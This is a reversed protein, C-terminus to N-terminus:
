RRRRARGRPAPSAGRRAARGASRGASGCARARGARAHAPAGAARAADVDRDEHEVEVAELHDVVREAVGGAVLHQERQRGPQGGRHARGVRDRAQAAVLEDDDAGVDVAARPAVSTASRSAAATLRGSTRSLPSCKKVTLMPMVSAASAAPCARLRQEAVGVRRHVAGLLAAAAAVLQEVLRHAGAHHGAHAGLGLQAAREVAALELDVVLRHDVEGGAPRHGGLREHAPLVGLAAQDGGSSNMGIASSVPRIASARVARGRAPRGGSRPRAAALEVRRDAHRDVDGPALREVRQEGGLHRRDGLAAPEAGPRERQLDGLGHQHLLGVRRGGHEVGELLVPQAEHEVVEAGAVRREAAELAEGEVHELDVAREDGPM